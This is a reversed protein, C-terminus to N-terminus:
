TKDELGPRDQHGQDKGPTDNGPYDPREGQANGRSGESYPDGVFTDGRGPTTNGEFYWYIDFNDIDANCGIYSM